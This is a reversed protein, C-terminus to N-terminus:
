FFLFLLGELHNNKIPRQLSLILREFGARSLTEGDGFEDFVRKIFDDKSLSNTKDIERVNRM